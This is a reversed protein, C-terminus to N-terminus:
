HGQVIQQIASAISRSAPRQRPVHESSAVAPPEPAAIPPFTLVSGIQVTAAQNEDSRDVADDIARRAQASLLWGLPLPVGQDTKLEFKTWSDGAAARLEAVAGDCKAVRTAFRAGSEGPGAGGSRAAGM